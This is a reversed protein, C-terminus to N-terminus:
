SMYEYHRYGQHDIQALAFEGSPQILSEKIEGEHLLEYEELSIERRKELREFLGRSPVSSFESSVRASFVLASCGSGYAGFCLREHARLKQLELLSALGLYISGTYINGISRSLAASDIVRANYAELFQRSRAFSRAYGALDLRYRESDDYNGAEPEPGIEAEVDSWRSSNKWDQRFIAASAYEIMRPYPIHFLLHDIWDTTCEGNKPSI